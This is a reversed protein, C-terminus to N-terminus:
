TLENKDNKHDNKEIALDAKLLFIQVIWIVLFPQCNQRTIITLRDTPSAGINCM